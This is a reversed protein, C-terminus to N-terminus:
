RIMAAHAYPVVAEGYRLADEVHIVRLFLQRTRDQDLQVNTLLAAEVLSRVERALVQGGTMGNRPKSGRTTTMTTM